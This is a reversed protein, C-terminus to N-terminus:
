RSVKLRIFRRANSTMPINDRVILSSSTNTIVTTYDPGSDWQILDSSVEITYTLDTASINKAVTLTLYNQNSSNTTSTTPLTRSVASQPNTGFAYELLNNVGDHDPDALDAATGTNSTTGFNLYRWADMAPQTWKLLTMSFPPLNFTANPDFQSLASTSINVNQTSENNDTINASALQQISVTGSPANPGSFTVPLIDTRHLNFIIVSKNQGESTAYSQLYHAGTYFIRNALPQDWTPDDGSHSTSVMTGSLAQNALQLALFQPRKRDGNGMDHTIGWIAVTKNDSRTARYGGLSFCGQDCIGLDHMMLLMHDALALGCGISPVYSDLASQSISGNTENINVEYVSLPVPRSSGQIINYNSRMFGSNVSPNRSWFEPEAFLPGYFLENTAYSDIQTNMYPGLTISDHATCANHIQLTLAANVAQSGLVCDFISASYYPSAKISSFITNGRTGYALSDSICGGRYASNNWNENGLELHIKSFVTTWPAPHGLAARKAGYITSTNGGLYEMLNSAEQSSFTMPMAYWPNCGIFECVGLFDHLSLLQTNQTVSFNSYGTRQRNEATSLQNDLSDGLMQWNLARLFEPHYARLANIVSDRFVTPNAPDSNTQIISVDDLLVASQNVPMFQLVVAGSQTGTENATFNITCPAWGTGTQITQNIFYSGTGRRLSVLLQNNGGVGKAKFTLRFSGSLMVFSIGNLTDFGSGLTASQGTGTATLRVCQRGTTGPSLDATESTITGGGSTNVNWGSTASGGFSSDGTESKRLIFYDGPAPINSINTDMFNYTTGQSSGSPDNPTQTRNPALSHSITGSRGVATGTIFEYTAGDWFGSPWQTYPQDEIASTATGGSGSRIVSQYIVGEFNANRVFIYDKLLQLSDYYTVAGLNLGFRHVSAVQTTGSINITTEARSHSIALLACILFIWYSFFQSKRYSNGNM